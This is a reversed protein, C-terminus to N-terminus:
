TTLMPNFGYAKKMAKNKNLIHRYLVDGDLYVDGGNDSDNLARVFARYMVEENFGGSSAVGAAIASAIQSANLVETRGNVHGVLEPGAEGAIFMSGANLTGSAYQPIEHWKGNYYAGGSAMTQRVPVSGSSTQIDANVGVNLYGNKKLSDKISKTVIEANVGVNPKNAGTLGNTYTNLGATSGISPKKDGTLNNKFKDFMAKSGITPLKSGTLKNNFTKMVAQSTLAPNGKDTLSGKTFNPKYTKLVAQSTIMPSGGSTTPRSGDKFSPIYNKLKLAGTVLPKGDSTKPKNSGSLDVDYDTIKVVIGDEITYGPPVEFTPTVELNIPEPNPNLEWNEWDAVPEVEIKPKWGAFFNGGGDNGTPTEVNGGDDGNGKGMILDKLSFGDFAEVIPDIIHEKIWDKINRFVGLIGDLIGTGINDGIKSTESSGGDEGIGFASKIGDFFPKFINNYIWTGIGVIANVIGKCIGTIIEGAGFQGDENEDTIFGLFYDKISTVVSKLVGALGSIGAGIFAGLLNFFSSALSGFDVNQIATKLNSFLNSTFTAWDIGAIWEAAEKFMGRFFDGFSKGITAWDLTEVAGILFDGIATFSRVLGRGITEFDISSLASNLFEAIKAGINEFNVTKLTWYKTTFWGNIYEGVKKGVGAFDINDIISNIKTGLLEGVGQWDANAIGSKIDSVFDKISQDIEAVEFMDNPNLASGGGGGGSNPDDLKNLEDFGMLQNKWEKAAGGGAEMNDALEGSVDKAKLFTGGTFAAFLQTLANALSTILGILTNIIPALATILSGFAAGLQNKMKLSSANLSSMAKAIRGDVADSLGKSFAVANKLGEQFAQTVMKIAARILRYFAIRGVSRFVTNLAKFGKVVKGISADYIKIRIPRSLISIYKGATRAGSILNKFSLGEKFNAKSFLASFVNGRATQGVTETSKKVKASEETYKKVGRLASSVGKLDVNALRQLSRTMNDLNQVSQPTVSQAASGIDKLGNALTKPIKVNKIGQLREIAKAAKALSGISSDLGKATNALETLSKSLNSFATSGVGGRLATKLATMSNVLKDISKAAQESSASIKIELKDVEAM